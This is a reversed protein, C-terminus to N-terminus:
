VNNKGGGLQSILVAAFMLACGIYGFVSMREGLILAGGLVSFVSETSMVIAAHAPQSHKQGISQLTYAVATSMIGVYLVPFLTDQLVAPTPSEFCLACVTYICGATLSQIFCLRLVPIQKAFRDTCLIHLAWFVSSSLVWLDGQALSFGNEMRCLLYLAPVSLILAIWTNLSTKRKFLIGIVPVLVVYLASLFGAKGAETCQLGIQQLFTATFLMLGVICGGKFDQVSLPTEHSKKNQIRSIPYLVVASILFRVAGLTLPPIRDAIDRQAVFALGWIMATLLLVLLTGTENKKM